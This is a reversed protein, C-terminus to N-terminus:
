ASTQSVYLTAASCQVAITMAAAVALALTWARVKRGRTEIKLPEPKMCNSKTSNKMGAGRCRRSVSTDPGPNQDHWNKCANVSDDMPAFVGNKLVPYGLCSAPAHLVTRFM